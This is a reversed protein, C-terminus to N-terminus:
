KNADQSYEKKLNSQVYENVVVELVDVDGQIEEGDRAQELQEANLLAFGVVNERPNHGFYELAEKDTYIAKAM